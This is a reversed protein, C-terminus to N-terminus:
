KIRYYWHGGKPTAPGPSTKCEQAAPESRSAQATLFVTAPMIALIAPLIKTRRM